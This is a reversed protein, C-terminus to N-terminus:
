HLNLVESLKDGIIKKENSGITSLRVLPIGYLELIHDKKIDRGSQSTGSKHFTYGDTEIALVPQKSVRNYILFDIHTNINAAYKSEKENLLSYDQILMYLPLHCITNLHRMNINEKLIDELLAFTLNESDYESIKKHKKLYAIRADTYQEYLYDFISHIKSTSVTGNNYEIYAILDSINCDKPQENGSVVLYFQSKARSVAVNLLNPDDSFSTIVDDVTTM